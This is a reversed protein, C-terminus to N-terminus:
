ALFILIIEQLAWGKYIGSKSFDLTSAKERFLLCKSGDIHIELWTDWSCNTNIYQLTISKKVLLLAAKHSLENLGVDLASFLM